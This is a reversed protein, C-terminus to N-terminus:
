APPQRCTPSYNLKLYHCLQLTEIYLACPWEVSKYVSKICISQAKYLTHLFCNNKTEPSCTKIYTFSLM